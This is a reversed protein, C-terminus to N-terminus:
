ERQETKRQVCLSQLSLSGPDHDTEVIVSKGLLNSIGNQITPCEQPSFKFSLKTRTQVPISQFDIHTRSVMDLVEPDTTIKQWHSSFKRIWGGEFSAIQQIFHEKLSPFLAM